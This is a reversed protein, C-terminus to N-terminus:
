EKVNCGRKLSNYYTFGTFSNITFSGPGQRHTTVTVLHFHQSLSRIDLVHCRTLKREVETGGTYTVLLRRIVLQHTFPLYSTLLLYDIGQRRTADDRAVRSNM